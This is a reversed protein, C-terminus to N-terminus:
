DSRGTLALLRYAHALVKEGYLPDTAWRGTLATVTTGSGRKVLGFRPDVIESIPDSTDGYAKLHQVHARIGTRIDPFALGPVGPGTAGLGAFNYQIAGVSGNFELYGTEHAMQALAVVLSVGERLCEERYTRYVVRLYIPDVRPNRAEIHTAFAAPSVSTRAMVDLDEFPPVQGVVSPESSHASLVVGTILIGM